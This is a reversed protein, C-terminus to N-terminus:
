LIVKMIISSIPMWSIVVAGVQYLHGQIAQRFSIFSEGYGDWYVKENLKARPKFPKHHLLGRTSSKISCISCTSGGMVIYDATISPPNSRNSRNSKDHYSCISNGDHQSGSKVSKTMISQTSHQSPTVVTSERYYGYVNPWVGRPTANGRRLPTHKSSKPSKAHPPVYAHGARESGSADSLPFVMQLTSATYATTTSDPTQPMKSKFDPTVDASYFCSDHQRISYAQEGLIGSVLKYAPTPREYANGSPFLATTRVIMKKRLNLFENYSGFVADNTNSEQMYQWVIKLEITSQRIAAYKVKGLSQYLTKPVCNNVFDALEQLSLLQMDQLLFWEFGESFYPAFIYTLWEIFEAYDALPPKPIVMDHQISHSMISRISNTESEEDMDSQVTEVAPQIPMDEAPVRLSHSAPPNRL